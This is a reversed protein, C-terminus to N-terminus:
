GGTNSPGLTLTGSKSVYYGGDESRTDYELLAWGERCNEARIGPRRERWGFAPLVGSFPAQPGPLQSPM